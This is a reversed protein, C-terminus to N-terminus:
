PALLFSRIAWRSFHQISLSLLGIEALGHCQDPYALVGHKKKILFKNIKPTPQIRGQLNLANQLYNYQYV